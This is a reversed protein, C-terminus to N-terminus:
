LVQEQQSMKSVQRQYMERARDFFAIGTDIQSRGTGDLNLDIRSNPLPVRFKPLGILESFIYSDSLSGSKYVGFLRIIAIPSGFFAFRNLWNSM